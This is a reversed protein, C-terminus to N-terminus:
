IDTWSKVDQKRCTEQGQFPSDAKESAAWGSNKIQIIMQRSAQTLIGAMHYWCMSTITKSQSVLTAITSSAKMSYCTICPGRIYNGCYAQVIAKITYSAEM